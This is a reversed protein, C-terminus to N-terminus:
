EKFMDMQQDVRAVSDEVTFGEPYRAKLKQINYTAIDSLTFDLVTALAAFQWFIDGMEKYLKDRDLEHGQAVCKDVVGCAEGVEAAM